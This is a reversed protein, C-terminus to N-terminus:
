GRDNVEVITAIVRTEIRGALVAITIGQRCYVVHDVKLVGQSLGRDALTVLTVLMVLGSKVKNVIKLQKLSSSKQRM